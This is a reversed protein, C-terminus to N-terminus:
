YSLKGDAKEMTFSVPHCNKLHDGRESADSQRQSYWSIVERKTASEPGQRFQNYANDHKPASM